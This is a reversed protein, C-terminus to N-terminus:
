RVITVRESYSEHTGCQIRLLYAGSPASIGSKDKGNWDITHTGADLPGSFLHLLIDGQLDLVDVIVREKSYLNFSLVVNDSSPNPYVSLDGMVPERNNKNYSQGETLTTMTNVAIGNFTEQSGDPWQVVVSDVDEAHGIGFHLRLPDQMLLGRGSIVQQYYINNDAYVYAKAGIASSNSAVSQLEIDIYNNRNDSSRQKYVALTTDIVLLALLGDTNIDAWVADSINSLHDLNVSATRLTFESRESQVYVDAYRCPCATTLICDMLGDNNIDGWAGGSHSEEYEFAEQISFKYHASTLEQRGSHIATPFTRDQKGQQRM